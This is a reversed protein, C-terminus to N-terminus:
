IFGRKQSGGERNGSVHVDFASLGICTSNGTKTTTICSQQPEACAGYAGGCPAGAEVRKLLGEYEHQRAKQRSAAKIKALV